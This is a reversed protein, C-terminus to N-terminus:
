MSTEDAGRSLGKGANRASRPAGGGRCPFLAHSSLQTLSVLGSRDCPVRGAQLLHGCGFRAEHVVNVVNVINVKRPRPRCTRRRKLKMRLTQRRWHGPRPAFIATGLQTQWKTTAHPQTSGNGIRATSGFSMGLM